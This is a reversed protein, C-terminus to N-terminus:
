RENMVRRIQSKYTVGIEVTEDWYRMKIIQNVVDCYEMYMKNVVYMRHCQLFEEGQLKELIQKLSLYLVDIKEKKMYICVGRPIAKIFVISDCFIKYNIGDKKVLIYRREKVNELVKKVVDEVDKKEFPKTLYQYCHLKRYAEMELSAVSTVMVIPTFAYEKKKRIEEAFTFGLIDNKEEEGLNVDLFFLDIKGSKELLKKATGFSKAKLIRIGPSCEGLIRELAKQSQEEDELILVKM